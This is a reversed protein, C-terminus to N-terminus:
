MGIQGVGTLHINGWDLRERRWWRGNGNDWWDGGMLRRPNHVRGYYHLKYRMCWSRPHICMDGRKQGRYWCDYICIIVFRDDVDIWGAGEM